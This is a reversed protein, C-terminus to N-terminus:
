PHSATNSTGHSVQGMAPMKQIDHEKCTSITIDRCPCTKRLRHTKSSTGEIATGTKLWVSFANLCLKTHEQLGPRYFAM